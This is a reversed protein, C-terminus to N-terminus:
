KPDGLKTQEINIKRYAWFLEKALKQGKEIEEQKGFTGQKITEKRSNTIEVLKIMSYVSARHFNEFSKPVVLAKLDKLTSEYSKQLTELKSADLLGYVNAFSTLEDEEAYDRLIELRKQYYKLINERNAEQTTIEIKELESNLDLTRSQEYLKPFDIGQDSAVGLSDKMNQIIKEDARKLKFNKPVELPLGTLPSKESAILEGDNKKCDETQKGGCLTYKNTPNSGYLFERLNTIGDGDPDSASSSILQNTQQEKTFNTKVWGQPYINLQEVTLEVFLLETPDNKTANKLKELAQQGKQVVAETRTEPVKNLPLNQYNFLNYIGFGGGIIVVPILFSIIQKQLTTLNKFM